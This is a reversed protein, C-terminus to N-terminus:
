PSTQEREPQDRQETGAMSPSSPVLFKGVAAAPAVVTALPVELVETWCSMPRVETDFFSTCYGSPPVVDYSKLDWDRVVVGDTDNYTAVLGTKGIQLAGKYVAGKPTVRLVEGSKTEYYRAGDPDEHFYLRSTNCGLVLSALAPLGVVLLFYKIVPALPSSTKASRTARKESTERETPPSPPIQVRSM